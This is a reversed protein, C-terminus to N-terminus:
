RRFVLIFWKNTEFINITRGNLFFMKTPDPLSWANSQILKWASSCPGMRNLFEVTISDTTRNACVLTVLPNVYEPCRYEPIDTDLSYQDFSEFNFEPKSQPRFIGFREGKKISTISNILERSVEITFLHACAM